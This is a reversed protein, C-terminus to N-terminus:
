CRLKCLQLFQPLPSLVFPPLPTLSQNMEVAPLAIAVTNDAFVSALPTDCLAGRAGVIAGRPARLQLHSGSAPACSYHKLLSYLLTVAAQRM